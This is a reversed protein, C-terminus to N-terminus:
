GSAERLLEEDAGYLELTFGLGFRTILKALLGLRDPDIVGNMLVEGKHPDLELRCWDTEVEYGYWSSSRSRWGARAFWEAVTSANRVRVTGYLAFDAEEWEPALKPGEDQEGDVLGDM